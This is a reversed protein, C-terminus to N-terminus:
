IVGRTACFLRLPMQGGYLNSPKPLPLAKELVILFNIFDKQEGPTSWGFAKLEMKASFRRELQDNVKLIRVSWPMGMLVIPVGTENLIHKLWDASSNLVKDTDKDIL